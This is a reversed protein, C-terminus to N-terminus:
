NRVPVLVESTTVDDTQPHHGTDYAEKGSGRDQYHISASGIAREYKEAQQRHGDGPKPDEVSVTGLGSVLHPPGEVRVAESAPASWSAALKTTPDPRRM